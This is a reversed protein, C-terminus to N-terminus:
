WGLSVMALHRQSREPATGAGIEESYYAYALKLLWLDIAAGFSGYGQNMGTRVILHRGLFAAEAGLHLRKRLSGDQKYQHTIDEYDVAAMLESAVPLKKSMSIGLNARAPIKGGEKFDLGTLDLLAFGIKPRLSPLFSLDYLLGVDFSFDSNTHKYDMVDFSDDDVQELTFTEDVWTRTINKAALGVRLGKKIPVPFSIGGIPGYEYGGNVKATTDGNPSTHLRAHVEAAGVFGITFNQIAFGPFLATRAYLARDNNEKALARLREERMDEDKLDLADIVDKGIQVTKQDVEILPNLFNLKFGMDYLAAPNYFLADPDKGVATFAGGMGLSRLGRYLHPYNSFGKPQEVASAASVLIFVIGVPLFTCYRKM